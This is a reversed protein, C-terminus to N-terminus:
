VKRVWIRFLIRLKVGFQAQITGDFLALRVAGNSMTVPGHEGSGDVREFGLKEYFSVSKEVDKVDFCIALWGIKTRPIEVKM